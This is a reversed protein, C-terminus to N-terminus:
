EQGDDSSLGCSREGAARSPSHPRPLSVDKQVSGQAVSAGSHFIVIREEKEVADAM